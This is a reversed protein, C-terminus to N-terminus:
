AVFFILMSINVGEFGCLAVYQQGTAKWQTRCVLCWCHRLRELHLRLRVARWRGECVLGHKSLTQLRSRQCPQVLFFSGSGCIICKPRCCELRLCRPQRTETLLCMKIRYRPPSSDGWQSPMTSIKYLMRTPSQDLRRYWLILMDIASFLSYRKYWIILLSQKQM